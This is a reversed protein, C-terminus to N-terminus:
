KTLLALMEAKAETLGAQAQKDGPSQRCQRECAALRSAAVEIETPKDSNLAALASPKLNLM